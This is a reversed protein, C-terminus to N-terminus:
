GRSARTRGAVFGAATTLTGAAMMALEDLKKLDGRAAAGLRRAAGAPLVKMVHARESALGDGAGVRSSVAAKSLGESWCRSLFYRRTQRAPAVNHSVVAQPQYLFFGGESRQSVRICLDTEECGVPKTGIRGLNEDFGGASTVAERRISMNCGIMNRIPQPRTPLGEWSCGIVWAFEDPFWAPREGGWVPQASGGVGQLEAQAYPELLTALWDPDAIADDDLFAVVESTAQAVGSNRAGSLGQANQNAIVVVGDPGFEALARDLLDDNHDIVLIIEAPRQTQALVSEVADCLQDWRDATYACIVVAADISTRHIVPVPPTPRNTMVECRQEPLHRERDAPWVISAPETTLDITPKSMGRSPGRRELRKEKIITRLVRLGDKIAHLNSDGHIRDAEFSPVEVVNLGSKIARVNLETEIEFGDTEPNIIPLARKWFANYGYCLDSFSGGFAIRVLQTLGWNGLRRIGSMDSTGAGHVFRSGKVYDAGGLLASVFVPIEGPDTSGDADIAVIIDSSAAEFGTRLARGKGKRLEVVVKIDPCLARAVEITGDTSGSDVLVIENVWEPILPLVYPLNRAENLTPVIVSTTIVKAVQGM